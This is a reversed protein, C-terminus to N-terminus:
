RGLLRGLGERILGETDRREADRDEADAADEGAGAEPPKRKGFIADGIEAAARNRLENRAAATLATLDPAVVPSSATGGIRLPLAVRQGDGLLPALRDAKALIQKSLAESFRLTGKASVAGDLGVRGAADIAFDGALLRLDKAQIGGDLIELAMNAGRFPTRDGSLASPAIDRLSAAALRGLGPDSALRGVLSNLLNVQELAGEGLELRLSGALSRKLSEWELSDGRLRVEGGLPAALAGVPAGLFTSALLGADLGALKTDLDFPSRGPEGLTLRGTMDVTGGALGVLARGLEVKADRAATRYVLDVSASEVDLGGLRGSGSRLAIPYGQKAPDATLGLEFTFDSLREVQAGPEDDLRVGVLVPHFSPSELRLRGTASALDDLELRGRLTSALGADAPKTSRVRGAFDIAIPGELRLDTGSSTFDEAVLSLGDPSTRDQYYVTGADIELAAIAVALGGGEGNAVPEEATGAEASAGLTSFNFGRKTEVIRIVPRELRVSAVEIRGQLAPWLRVRVFADELALFPVNGFRPDEAVELGSVRVALGGAFAAEAREFAVTRGAADSALEALTDRNAELWTDLNALAVVVAGILLVVLIAIAILVKRM